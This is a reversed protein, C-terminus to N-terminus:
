YDRNIGEKARLAHSGVLITAVLPFQRLKGKIVQSKNTPHRRINGACRESKESFAFEYYTSIPFGNPSPSAWVTHGTCRKCEIKSQCLLTTWFIMGFSHVNRTTPNFARNESFSWSPRTGVFPPLFPLTYNLMNIFDTRTSCYISFL